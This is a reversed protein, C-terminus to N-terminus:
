LPEAGPQDAAPACCGLVSALPWSGMDASMFKVVEQWYSVDLDTVLPAVRQWIFRKATVWQRKEQNSLNSFQGGWLKLTRWLAPTQFVVRHWRKNVLSTTRRCMLANGLHNM